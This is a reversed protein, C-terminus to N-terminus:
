NWVSKVKMAVGLPGLIDLEGGAVATLGCVRSGSDIPRDTPGENEDM